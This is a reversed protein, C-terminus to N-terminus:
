SVLLAAADLVLRGCLISWFGAIVTAVVVGAVPRREAKRNRVTNRVIILPASFILIPVGVFAAVGGEQLLRFGLRHGTLAEYGSALLGSFAFGLCLAQLADLSSPDITM